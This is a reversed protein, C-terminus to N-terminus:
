AGKTLTTNETTHSVHVLVDKHKHWEIKEIECLKYLLIEFGKWYWLQKQRQNESELCVM